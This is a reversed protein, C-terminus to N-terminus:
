VRYEVITTSTLILVLKRYLNASVCPFIVSVDSLKARSPSVHYYVHYYTSYMVVLMDNYILDRSMVHPRVHFVLRSPLKDTCFRWPAVDRPNQRKLDIRHLFCLKNGKSM